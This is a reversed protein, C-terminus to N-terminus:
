AGVPVGCATTSLTLPSMLLTTIIGIPEDQQHQWLLKIEQTRGRISEAFAGPLVVDHQHDIVGFVSAYGAFRGTAANISKIELRACIHAM